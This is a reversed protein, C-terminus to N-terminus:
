KKEYHTNSKIYIAGHDKQKFYHLYRKADEECYEQYNVGSERQCADVKKKLLKVFELAILKERKRQKIAALNSVSDDFPIIYDKDDTEFDPVKDYGHLIRPM